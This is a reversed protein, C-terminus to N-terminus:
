SHARRRKSAGTRSAALVAIVMASLRCSWAVTFDFDDAQRAALGDVEALRSADRWAADHREINRRHHL